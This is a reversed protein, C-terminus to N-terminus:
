STFGRSPGVNMGARRYRRVSAPLFIVLTISSNVIAAIGIADIGHRNILAFIVVVQVISGALNRVTMPWVRKDLWAFTNYFVMVASGPISILLLRMLTTGHAAYTTGFIRLYEPAFIYGLLVSPIVVLALVRIASNSHRRLEEPESAAEVLFSRTIAICLLILGTSIMSPLFYHANAIAGLRDIVILAILSPMFIGSLLTSYQAGALVIMDRTAPLDETKRGLAMHEPIRKEFLYWTVAVITLIIPAISAVFIGEKSSIHECAPLIALKLLGFGVNEVAVWKSARLGVLVSDQLAFLTWLVVAAVFFARWVLATPVFDHGFGLLLYAIPLTFGCAICMMYAKKVFNRTLEGAVPLFREFISGFSLQSLNALLLVAALAATTRGVAVTSYLHAAVAWFVVGIVASGGSSVMLAVANQVLLGPRTRERLSLWSSRKTVRQV